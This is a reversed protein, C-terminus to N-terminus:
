PKPIIVRGRSIRAVGFCGVAKVDSKSDLNFINSRVNAAPEAFLGTNNIQTNMEKIFRYNEADISLLEVDITDNELFGKQGNMVNRVPYIFELGDADGPDFAADAGVLILGPRLDMVGNLAYRIWFYDGIGVPDTARMNVYMGAENGFESERQEANITDMKVGRVLTSQSVYTQGQYVIKLSFVEGTDGRLTDPFWYDGPSDAKEMFSFTQGNSTTVEVTAGTAGPAKTGNQFYPQTMTLRIKQPGDNVIIMADVALQSKGSDLTVDIPDECSTLGLLMVGFFLSLLSRLM